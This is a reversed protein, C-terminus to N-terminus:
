QELIEDIHQKTKEFVEAYSGGEIPPPINVGKNVSKNHILGQLRFKDSALEQGILITYGRYDSPDEM